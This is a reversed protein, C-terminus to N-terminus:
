LKSSKNQMMLDLQLLQDKTKSTEFKCIDREKQIRQAYIYKSLFLRGALSHRSIKNIFSLMRLLM